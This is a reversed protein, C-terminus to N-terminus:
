VKEERLASRREMKEQISDLLEQLGARSTKVM